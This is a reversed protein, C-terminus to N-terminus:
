VRVRAVVAFFDNCLHGMVKPKREVLAAKEFLEMGDLADTRVVAAERLGLRPALFADVLGADDSFSSAGTFSFVFRL